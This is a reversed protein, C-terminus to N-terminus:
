TPLTCGKEACYPVSIVTIKASILRTWFQANTSPLLVGGPLEQIFRRALPRNLAPLETPNDGTARRAGKLFGVSSGSKSNSEIDNNM